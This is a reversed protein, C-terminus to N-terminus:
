RDLSTPESDGVGWDQSVCQVQEDLPRGQMEGDKWIEDIGLFNRM